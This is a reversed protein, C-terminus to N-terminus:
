RYKEIFRASADMVAMAEDDTDPPLFQVVRSVGAAQYEDLIESTMEMALFVTIPISAPDRGVKACREALEARAKHLAGGRPDVLLWGDCYDVVRQLGAGSVAGLLM